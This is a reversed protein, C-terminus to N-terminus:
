SAMVKKKSGEDPGDPSNQNSPEDIQATESNQDSASINQEPSDKADVSLLALIAEDTDNLSAKEIEAELNKSSETKKFGFMSKIRSISIKSELLASQLWFYWYVIHKIVSKDFDTLDTADLRMILADAQNKDLKIKNPQKM